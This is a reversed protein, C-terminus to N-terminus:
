ESLVCKLFTSEFDNIHHAVSGNEKMRLNFLRRMLFVKNSLTNQEYTNCLKLWTAHVTVCDLVTFYVSEALYLCITSRAM